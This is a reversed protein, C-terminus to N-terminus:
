QRTYTEWYPDGNSDTKELIFENDGYFTIAGSETLDESYIITLVDNEYTYSVELPFNYATVVAKGDKKLELSMTGTSEAWTGRILSGAGCSTLLALLLAAVVAARLAKVTKMTFVGKIFLDFDASITVCFRRDTM